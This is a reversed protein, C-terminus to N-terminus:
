GLGSWEQALVWSLPAFAGGPSGDRGSILFFEVEKFDREAAVVLNDLGQDCLWSRVAVGSTAAPRADLRELVDAKSVVFALRQRDTRVSYDQLRRVAANYSDEPNHLAPNAEEVARPDADACQERLRRVSFPDLVFALTRAYDLYSLRANQEPDVLVEGAADFVHLLAVRPGKALRVTVSVPGDTKAATAGRRVLAAYMEYTQRGHEDPLSLAVGSRDAATHLGVLAAMIFQTKGASPAGFVPLRVDTVVGAGDFLPEGCSPCCARLRRSFAARLVTTPLLWGCSCRRWWVGLRGPRLDRHLDDGARRDVPPHAGLCRYAPVAALEYCRKCSARSKVVAQWTTDAGRLLYVAPTGFLWAAASVVATGAATALVAILVAATVSLQAVVVPVGLPWWAYLNRERWWRLPERWVRTVAARARGAIGVLDLLVQVAFYQPWARDRRVFRDAVRGPLLGDRVRDPTCVVVWEPRGALASVAIVAVIVVGAVAGAAVGALALPTSIFFLCAACAVVYLVRGIFVM